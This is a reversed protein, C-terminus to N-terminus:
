PNIVDIYDADEPTFGFSFEETLLAGKEFLLLPLENLWVNNISVREAQKNLTDPDQIKAIFTFRPDEGKKWADLVKKKGRTFMKKLRYTGEGALSILKSDVSMGIAVDERNPNVKAEFQEIEMMLEGDWWFQGWTGSIQDKGRVSM